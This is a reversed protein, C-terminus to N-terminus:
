LTPDVLHIRMVVDPHSEVPYQKRHRGVFAKLAREAELGQLTDDIYGAAEEYSLLRGPLFELSQIITYHGEKDPGEVSVQGPRLEEFILKQFPGHENQSRTQIAGRQVGLLSDAHIIDAASEGGKLRAAYQDAKDKSDAWLAAYRVSPYTTFDAPHAKYYKRRADSDISVRSLVSDSYLHEVMIQERKNEIQAVVASDKALGRERAVQAMYPEFVFADVQDRFAPPSDINPRTLPQIDTYLHLFRGLTLVGDRYRALVRSTDQPGFEPVNPDFQFNAVGREDRDMVRAPTFHSAAWAIATSDYTMGIQARVLDRVAHGRREIQEQSLQGRIFSSVANLSPPSGPRKEMLQVISWGEPEEIPESYAGTNLRFIKRSLDLPAGGRVTWGLEGDPNKDKGKSLSYRDYAQQWTTRGSMLDLRVRQATTLDPFMIHRMRVEYQYTEYEKAIEADSVTVSDLVASKYLANSLAREEVERMQARDEFQFPRNLERAVQGLIDKTVINELFTARGTSDNDPRDPVYAAFWLRIYDAVTTKRPGVTCLVFDGPLFPGHEISRTRVPVPAQSASTSKAGSTRSASSKAPAAKAPAATKGAAFATSAVLLGALLFGFPAPGRVNM